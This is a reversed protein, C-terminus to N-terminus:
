GTSFRATRWFSRRVCHRALNPGDREPLRIFGHRVVVGDRMRSGRTKWKVFKKESLRDLTTFIAGFAQERGTAEALMAQVTGATTDPGQKLLALLIMEELKPLMTRLATYPM